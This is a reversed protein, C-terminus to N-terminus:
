RWAAPRRGGAPRLLRGAAAFVFPALLADYAAARAVVSLTRWDSLAESGALVGMGAFVLGGALGGLGGLFPAVWRPSRLLGGQLVGVGYGTLAYALASLGAPTALFLDYGFGAAFGVLAATEPEDRYAVAVALLLGLDPVTGLLRLSPFLAVQLVVTVVVAATLRTGRNM